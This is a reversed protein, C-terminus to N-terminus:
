RADADADAGIQGLVWRAHRLLRDVSFTDPDTLVLRAYEDAMASLTRATLEPDPAM